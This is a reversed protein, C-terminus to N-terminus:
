GFGAVVSLHVLGVDHGVAWQSASHRVLTVKGLRAFRVAMGGTFARRSQELLVSCTHLGFVALAFAVVLSVVVLTVDNPGRVVTEM